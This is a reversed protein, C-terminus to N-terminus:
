SAPRVREFLDRRLTPGIDLPACALTVRRRTTQEQDIWYVSEGTDQGLWSSLSAALSSCRDGAATLEIRQDEEEIAEAGAAIATALKRLAEGLTDSLGSPQPAPRQEGGEGGALAGRRPLVRGVIRQATAALAM